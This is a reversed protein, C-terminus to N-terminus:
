LKASDLYYIMLEDFGIGMAEAQFPIYSLETLGPNTNMELVKPVGEHIILDLRICGKCSFHQYIKKAM